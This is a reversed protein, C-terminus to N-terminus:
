GGGLCNRRRWKSPRFRRLSCNCARRTDPYGLQGLAERRIANAPVAVLAIRSLHEESTWLRWRHLTVQTLRARFEGHGTILVSLVGEERLAAQFDDPESFVSTVRAPM